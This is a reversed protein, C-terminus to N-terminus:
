CVISLYFISMNCLNLLSFGITCFCLNYVNRVKSLSATFVVIEYIKGMRELFEDVHPRKGVYVQHTYGDIEVPIIFDANKTPKFSSHVLTEDLDLVLCKRGIYEGEQEGLLGVVKPTSKVKAEKAKNSPSLISTPPPPPPAEAKPPSVFTLIRNM